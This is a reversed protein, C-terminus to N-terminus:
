QWGSSPEKSEGKAGAEINDVRACWPEVVVVHDPDRRKMGQQDEDM